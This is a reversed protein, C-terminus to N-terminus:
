QGLLEELRARTEDTIHDVLKWVDAEPLVVSLFMDYPMISIGNEGWLIKGWSNPVVLGIDSEWGEIRYCHGQGMNGVPKPFIKFKGNWSQYWTSAAMLSGFQFIIQKIFEITSNTAVRYYADIHWKFIDNPTPEPPTPKLWKFKCNSGAAVVKCGRQNLLKCAERPYTGPVNPIGDVKKCENYLWLGDFKIQKGYQLFEEDTKIGAGAFGVCAPYGNQDYILTNPNVRYSEPLAVEKVLLRTAPFDRSDPVDPIAGYMFQRQEM